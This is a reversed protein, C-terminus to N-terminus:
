PKSAPALLRALARRAPPDYYRDLWYAAVGIVFLLSIGFLPVFGATNLHIHALALIALSLIPYHIAYIAFSTRGLMACLRESVPGVIVAASGIIIAPFVIMTLGIDLWARPAMDLLFLPILLLPIASAFPVALKGRIRLRYILVGAWFSFTVRAIGSLFSSWQWGVNASGHALIVLAFVIAAVGVGVALVRTEIRSLAVAFWINVALEFFLSWAPVNLPYLETGGRGLAPSPLMALAAVVRSSWGLADLHGMGAILVATVVLVGFMTGAIYLPYLRVLRAVLFARWSLGEALRDAYAHTLVFGSLMFFLDVALYSGPLRVPAFLAAAHYVMVAIAAVGRLGDLLYFTRDERTEM